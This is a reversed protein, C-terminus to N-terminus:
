VDYSLLGLFIIFLVMVKKLPSFTKRNMIQGQIVQVIIMRIMM